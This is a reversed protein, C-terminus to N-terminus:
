RKDDLKDFNDARQFALDTTTLHNVSWFEVRLELYNLVALITM